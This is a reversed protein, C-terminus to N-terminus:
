YKIEDTIIQKKITTKMGPPFCTAPMAALMQIKNM